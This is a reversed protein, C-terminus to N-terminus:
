FAGGGLVEDADHIMEAEIGEHGGSVITAAADKMAEQEVMRTPDGTGGNDVDDGGAVNEAGDVLFHSGGVLVPKGEYLGVPKGFSEDALVWVVIEGGFEM